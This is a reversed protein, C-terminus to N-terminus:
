SRSTERRTGNSSAFIIPDSLWIIAQVSVLGYVLHNWLASYFTKTLGFKKLVGLKQGGILSGLSLTSILIGKILHHDKGTKKLLYTMPIGWISGIVFHALEGLIFNKRQKTRFPAFFLGGAIHGYLTETKGAKFILLNSIEMCATGIFGSLLGVMISDKMMGTKPFSDTLKPM